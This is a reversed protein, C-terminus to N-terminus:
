WRLKGTPEFPKERQARYSRWILIGFVTPIAIVVSLM